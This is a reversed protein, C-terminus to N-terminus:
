GLFCTGVGGGGVWMSAGVGVRLDEVEAGDRTGGDLWWQADSESNQNTHQLLCVNFPCATYLLSQRHSRYPRSYIQMGAHGDEPLCAPPTPLGGVLLEKLRHCIKYSQCLQLIACDVVNLALQHQAELADPLILM